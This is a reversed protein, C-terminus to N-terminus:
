KLMKKLTIVLTKEKNETITDEERYPWIWEKNEYVKKLQPYLVFGSLVFFFEVFFISFFQFHNLDYLYYYFHCIAVGYGAIGRFFDLSSINNFSYSESM